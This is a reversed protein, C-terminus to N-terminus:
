SDFQALNLGADLRENLYRIEEISTEEGTIAAQRGIIASLTSDSGSQMENLYNGTEISQIFSKGKNVDSDFLSSTQVGAAIQEPSLRGAQSRLMGSDWTNEGEIFVGRAYHAEAVGKTGLFRACVDGFHPGAQSAHLSVNVNNAYRYVLQYNNWTDGVSMRNKRGGQGMASVPKSQLAWNCVDLMHISQDLLPGGSLARYLYQNRIRLEDETVNEFPKFRVGSSLYYLQVSVVDGIARSRIRKVMEAYPSAHRIQFGIVMSIRGNARKAASEIRKCGFVDVAAPKECYIHKRAEAAAEFFEPHTYAPSSILVADVDARELLRLYAKSGVFQNGKPIGSLGKAQNLRDYERVGASLKDEFLDAAAVIHISTNQSMTGIVGLGRGGCGIIGLRVASNARSGFVLDPHLLTLTSLAASSKIFTRRDPRNKM